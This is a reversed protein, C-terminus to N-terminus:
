GDDDYDDNRDGMLSPGDYRRHAIICCLGHVLFKASANLRITQNFNFKCKWICVCVCVGLIANRSSIIASGFVDLISFRM